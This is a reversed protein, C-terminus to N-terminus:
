KELITTNQSYGLAKLIVIKDTAYNSHVYENWLFDWDEFTGHRIAVYYATPRENPKISNFILYNLM